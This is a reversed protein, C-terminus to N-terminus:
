FYGATARMAMNDAFWARILRSHGGACTPAARQATLAANLPAVNM